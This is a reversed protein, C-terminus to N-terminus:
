TRPSRPRDPRPLPRPDLEAGDGDPDVALVEGVNVGRFKVDAREPLQLGISSTQLTVADYEVFQKTFIPTPSGVCLVAPVRPWSGRGLLKHHRPQLQM